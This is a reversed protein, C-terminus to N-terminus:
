KRLILMRAEYDFCQQGAGALCTEVELECQCGSAEHSEVGKTYVTEVISPYKVKCVEAKSGNAEYSGGREKNVAGLSHARRSDSLVPWCRRLQEGAM